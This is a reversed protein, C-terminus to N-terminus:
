LLSSVPRGLGRHILNYRLKKRIAAMDKSDGPDDDVLGGDVARILDLVPTQHLSKVLFYGGQTGKRADVLGGSRLLQLVKVAYPISINLRRAIDDGSLTGGSRSLERLALTGYIVRQTIQM